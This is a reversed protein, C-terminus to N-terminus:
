PRFLQKRVSLVASPVRVQSGGKLPFFFLEGHVSGSTQSVEVSGLSGNPLGYASHNMSSAINGLSGDQFSLGPPPGFGMRHSSFSEVSPSNPFVNDHTPQTIAPSSLRASMIAPDNFPQNSMPKYSSPDPYLLSASLAMSYLPGIPTCIILTLM